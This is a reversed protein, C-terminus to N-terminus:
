QQGPAVEAEVVVAFDLEFTGSESREVQQHRAQRFRDVQDALQV